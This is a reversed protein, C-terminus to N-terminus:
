FFLIPCGVNGMSRSCPHSLRAKGARSLRARCLNNFMRGKFWNAKIIIQGFYTSGLHPVTSISAKQKSQMWEQPKFDLQKAPLAQMGIDIGWGAAVSLQLVVSTDGQLSFASGPAIHHPGCTTNFSLMRWAWKTMSGESEKHVTPILTDADYLTGATERQALM